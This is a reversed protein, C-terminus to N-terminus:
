NRDFGSHWASGACPHHGAGPSDEAVGLHHHLPARGEEGGVGGQDNHFLGWQLILTEQHHRCTARPQCLNQLPHVPLQQQATIESGGTLHFNKDFKGQMEVGCTGRLLIENPKLRYGQTIWSKTASQIKQIDQQRLNLACSRYNIRSMMVLTVLTVDPFETM